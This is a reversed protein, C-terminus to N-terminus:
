ILRDCAWESQYGANIRKITWLTSCDLDYACENSVEAHWYGNIMFVGRDISNAPYNGRNNSKYKGLKSECDALRILYDPWKFNQEKAIIRIKQEVTLDTRDENYPLMGESLAPLHRMLDSENTFTAFQGLKPALLLTMLVCTILIKM